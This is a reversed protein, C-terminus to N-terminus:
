REIFVTISKRFIEKQSFNKIPGVGHLSNFTKLHLTMQNDRFPLEKVEEAKNLPVTKNFFNFKYEDDVAKFIKTGLNKVKLIEKNDIVPIVFSILKESGDTHPLIFGNDTPILSFEFDIKKKKFIFNKINTIFNSKKEALRLDVHNKKLFNDLSFIFKESSLYKYLKKIFNTSNIFNNFSKLQRHNNSFRYKKFKNNDDKGQLEEFYNLSPYEKCINDYVGKDLFDNLICHPFPDYFFQSKDFNIM